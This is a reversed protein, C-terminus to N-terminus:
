IMLGSYKKIPDALTIGPASVAVGEKEVVGYIIDGGAANAFASVDALFERRDDDAGGVAAAKFDLYHSESVGAQALYALDSPTLDDLAKTLM